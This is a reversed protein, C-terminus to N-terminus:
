QGTEDTTDGANAEQESLDYEPFMGTKILDCCNKHLIREAGDIFLTTYKNGWLKSNCHWCYNYKPKNMKGVM